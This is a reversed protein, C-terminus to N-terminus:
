IAQFRIYQHHAMAISSLHFKDVGWKKGPPTRYSFQCANWDPPDDWCTPVPPHDEFNGVAPGDSDAILSRTTHIEMVIVCPNPTEKNPPGWYLPRRLNKPRLCNRPQNGELLTLHSHFQSERPCSRHHINWRAQQISAAELIMWLQIMAFFLYQMQHDFKALYSISQFYGKENSTEIPVDNM